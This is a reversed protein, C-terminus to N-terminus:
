LTLEFDHWFIVDAGLDVAGIDCNRVYGDDVFDVNRPAFNASITTPM